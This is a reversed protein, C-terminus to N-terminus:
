EEGEEEEEEWCPQVLRPHHRAVGAADLGNQVAGVLIQHGKVPWPEPFVVDRVSFDPHTALCENCSSSVLWQNHTHYESCAAVWRNVGMHQLTHIWQLGEGDRLQLALLLLLPFHPLGTCPLHCPCPM